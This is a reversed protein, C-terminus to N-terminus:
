VVFILWPYKCSHGFKSINSLPPLLLRVLVLACLSAVGSVVLDIALILRSNLYRELHLKEILRYM